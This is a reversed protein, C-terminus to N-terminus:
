SGKYNKKEAHHGFPDCCLPNLTTFKDLYQKLHHLCVTKLGNKRIGTRWVLLEINEHSIEIIPLLGIKGHTHVTIHCASEDVKGISCSQLSM